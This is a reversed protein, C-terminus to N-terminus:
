LLEKNNVSVHNALQEEQLRCWTNLINIIYYKLSMLIYLM